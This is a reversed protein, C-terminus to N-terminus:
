KKDLNPGRQVWYPLNVRRRKGVTVKEELIPIIKEKEINLNRDPSIENKKNV